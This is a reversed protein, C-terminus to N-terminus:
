GGIRRIGCNDPELEGQAADGALYADVTEIAILRKNGAMVCPIEGALVKQRLFYATVATDADLNKYHAALGSVTRMRNM